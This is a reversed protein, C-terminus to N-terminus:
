IAIAWQMCGLLFDWPFGRRLGYGLKSSIQQGVVELLSAAIRWALETIFDIIVIYKYCSDHNAFLSLFAVM